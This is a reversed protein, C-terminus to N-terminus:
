NKKREREKDGLNENLKQVFAEYAAKCGIRQKIHPPIKPLPAWAIFGENAWTGIVATGGYGLLLVKRAPPAPEVLPDRWEATPATKPEIM